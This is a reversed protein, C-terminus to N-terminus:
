VDGGSKRYNVGIRDLRRYHTSLRKLFGQVDKVEPMSWLAEAMACMRPLAMYGVRNEDPMRETWVNGQGGLIHLAEDPTLEAPVPDFSYVKELPLYEGVGWSSDEEAQYYDFYCHSTPSMVVDHGARAAEVGGKIGRWSMVTADPPLGGELIEDWGVLRRGKSALFKEIRGVFYSQLQHEDKLDEESIRRQCDPCDTWRKKPCEDGGIHIFESPFLEIVESLINELFEFTAEKGACYVDDYIGWYNGVEFPGGTCSYEPYAALSAMCHGPLEIEPVVEIFRESAYAVVERIEDQTYFGGYRRGDKEIRFGGIEALRPYRKIEIRWGQDEVLHWHFVNMKHVALLDIYKKIFEVPYIHRGVDLHMGRWGFRPRDNIQVAPISVPSRSVAGTPLLQLLTQVGYFLGAASAAEIHVGNAAVGLRYGAEGTTAADDILALRISGRQQRDTLDLSLGVMSSLNDLLYRGIRVLEDNGADVSVTAQSTLVFEGEGAEM